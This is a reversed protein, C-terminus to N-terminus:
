APLREQRLLGVPSDKAMALFDRSFAGVDRAMCLYPAGRASSERTVLYPGGQTAAGEGAGRAATAVERAAGSLRCAGSSALVLLALLTTHHVTANLETKLSDSYELRLHAGLTRVINFM